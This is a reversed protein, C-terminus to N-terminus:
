EHAEDQSLGLIHKLLKALIHKRQLDLLPFYFVPQPKDEEILFLIFDKPIEEWSAVPDTSLTIGDSNLRLEGFTINQGQEYARLVIPYAVQGWKELSHNVAINSKDLEGSIRIRRNDACHITMRLGNQVVPFIAPFTVIDEIDEWRCASVQSQTKYVIGHEAIQLEIGRTFWWGGICVLGLAGVGAGWYLFAPVEARTETCECNATVPYSLYIAVLGVAVALMMLGLTVKSFQGFWRLHYTELVDGFEPAYVRQVRVKMAKNLRTRKPHIIGGSLGDQGRM